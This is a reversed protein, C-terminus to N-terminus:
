QVSSKSVGLRSFNFKRVTETEPSGIQCLVFLFFGMSKKGLALRVLQLTAHSRCSCVFLAEANPNEFPGLPDMSLGFIM